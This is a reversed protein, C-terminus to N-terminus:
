FFLMENGLFVIHFPHSSFAYILLIASLQNLLNAYIYDMDLLLINAFYQM